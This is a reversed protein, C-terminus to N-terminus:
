GHKKGALQSCIYTAAELLNPVVSDPVIGKGAVQERVGKKWGSEVLVTTLGVAKGAVIDVESDGVMYSRSTDVLYDKAAQQFLGTAPKRCACGEYDAHHCVYVADVRAGAERALREHMLREIRRYESWGFDRDKHNIGGQNTVVIVTVGLDNLMRIGDAAGPLLEFREADYVPGDEYNRNITGDRDLFVVSAKEKWFDKM